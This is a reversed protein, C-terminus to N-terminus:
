KEYSISFQEKWTQSSSHQFRSLSQRLDIFQKKLLITIKVRYIRGIWSCELDRWIKFDEEIEKKLFKFNENCLYKVQKALTEGLYKINIIIITFPTTEGMEKKAQKDYIYFFTSWM